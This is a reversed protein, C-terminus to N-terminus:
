TWSIDLSFARQRGEKTWELDSAWLENEGGDATGPFRSNLSVGATTSYYLSPPEEREHNRVRMAVM